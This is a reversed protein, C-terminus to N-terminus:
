EAMVTFLPPQKKILIELFPFEGRGDVMDREPDKTYSQLM